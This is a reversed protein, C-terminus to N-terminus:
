LGAEMDVVLCQERAIALHALLTKMFASEPCVCGKGGAKVTGMLLFKLSGRAYCYMDPIDSVEPNLKYVSGPVAPDAGTREQILEKLDTIPRPIDAVSIGLTAGLNSDPDADVAIVDTGAAEYIHCLLAAFTTKGVGGKGTVAIKM